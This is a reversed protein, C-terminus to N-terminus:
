VNVRFLEFDDVELSQSLSFGDDGGGADSDYDRPPLVRGDAVWQLQQLSGYFRNMDVDGSIGSVKGQNDYQWFTWPLGEIRSPPQPKDTWYAQWFMYRKVWAPNGMWNKIYNTTTYILPRRGFLEETRRALEENWESCESQTACHWEMDLVPPLDRAGSLKGVTEYFFEAQETPNGKPNHQAAHPSAKFPPVAFHYPGRYMGLREAEAWNFQYRVDAIHVDQTAKIFAYGVGAACVKDWDIKGQWKSVDIGVLYGESLSGLCRGSPTRQPDGKRKRGGVARTLALGGFVVGTGASAVVLAKGQPTLKSWWSRTRSSMRAHYVFNDSTCTRQVMPSWPGECFGLTKWAVRECSLTAM